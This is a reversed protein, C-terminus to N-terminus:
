STERKKMSDNLRKRRRPLCLSLTGLSLFALSIAGEILVRKEYASPSSLARVGLYPVEPLSVEIRALAWEIAALFIVFLAKLLFSKRTEHEHFLFSILLLPTWSCIVLELLSRLYLQSVPIIVYNQGDYYASQGEPIMALGLLFFVLEIGLFFLFFYARKGKRIEKLTWDGEGWNRSFGSVNDKLFVQYLGYLAFFLSCPLLYYLYAFAFSAELNSSISPLLTEGRVGFFADSNQNQSLLFRDLAAEKSSPDLGQLAERLERVDGEDLTLIASSFSERALWYSFALLFGLTFLFCVFAAFASSSDCWQKVSEYRFMRAFLSKSHEKKM